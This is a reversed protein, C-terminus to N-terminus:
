FSVVTLIVPRSRKSLYRLKAVAFPIGMLIVRVIM